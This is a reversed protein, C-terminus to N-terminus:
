CLILFNIVQQLLQSLIHTKQKKLIRSKILIYTKLGEKPHKIM